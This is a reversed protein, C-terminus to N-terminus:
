IDLSTEQFGLERLNCGDLWQVALFIYDLNELIAMKQPSSEQLRKRVGRSEISSAPIKFHRRSYKIGAWVRDPKKM